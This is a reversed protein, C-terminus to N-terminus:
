GGTLYKQIFPYVREISTAIYRPNSQSMIGKNLGVFECSGKKLLPGGSNGPDLRASHMTDGPKQPRGIKGETTVGPKGYPSGIAVVPTGSEPTSPSPPFQVPTFQENAQLKILAQDAQQDDAIVTGQYQRGDLFKVSLEGGAKEIVHHNTLVVGSAHVISGSGIEPGAYVTVTSQDRVHSCTPDNQPTSPFLTQPTAQIGQPM